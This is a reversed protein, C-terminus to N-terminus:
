PFSLETWYSQDSKTVIKSEPCRCVLIGCNCKYCIKNYDHNVREISEEMAELVIYFIFAGCSPCCSSGIPKIEIEDFVGITGCEFCNFGVAKPPRHPEFTLDRGVGNYPGYPDGQFHENHRITVGSYGKQFLDEIEEDLGSWKPYLGMVGSEGGCRIADDCNECPIGVGRRGHWRLHRASLWLYYREVDGPPDGDLWDDFTDSEIIM